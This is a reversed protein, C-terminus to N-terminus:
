LLLMRLLMAGGMLLALAPACATVGAPRIRTAVYRM